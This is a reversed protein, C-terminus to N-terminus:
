FRGAVEIKIGLVKSQKEWQSVYRAFRPFFEGWIKHFGVSKVTHRNLETRTVFFLCTCYIIFINEKKFQLNGMRAKEWSAWGLFLGFTLICKLIM